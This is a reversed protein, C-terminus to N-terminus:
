FRITQIYIQNLADCLPEFLEYIFENSILTRRENVIKTKLQVKFGENKPWREGLQVWLLRALEDTSVIWHVAYKQEKHKILFSDDVRQEEGFLSTVIRELISETQQTEKKKNVIGLYKVYATGNVGYRDFEINHFGGVYMGGDLLIRNEPNIMRIPKKLQVITRALDLSSSTYLVLANGVSVKSQEKEKEMKNVGELM